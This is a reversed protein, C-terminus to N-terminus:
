VEISALGISKWRQMIMAVSLNFGMGAFQEIQNTNPKTSTYNQNLM